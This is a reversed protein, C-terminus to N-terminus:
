KCAHRPVAQPECRDHIPTGASTGASQPDSIQAKNAEYFQDVEEPSPTEVNSEVEAHLLEERTMRNKAAEATILKDEILSNLAKWLIELKARDYAAQPQPRNADLKVTRRLGGADDTTGHHKRREGYCRGKSGPRPPPLPFPLWCDLM